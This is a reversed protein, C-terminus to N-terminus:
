SAHRDGRGTRRRRLIDRCKGTVFREAINGPRVATRHDVAEPYVNGRWMGGEGPQRLWVPPLFITDLGSTDFGRGGGPDDFLVPFYLRSGGDTRWAFRGDAYLEAQLNTPCDPDRGVLANEWTLLLSNSPSLAHWFVSARERAGPAPACDLALVGDQLNEAGTPTEERNPQAGAEPARSLLGWRSEPLLSVGDVPSVPFYLTGVDPRVEGRALVTVGTIVGDLVPIREAFTEFM